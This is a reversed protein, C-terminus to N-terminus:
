PVVASAAAPEGQLLASLHAATSMLGVQESGMVLGVVPSDPDGMCPPVPQVRVDEGLAQAQDALLGLYREGYKLLACIRRAESVADKRQLDADLCYVPWRRDEFAIWGVGGVPPSQLELDARPALIRVDYQSLVLTRGDFSLSMYPPTPLGNVSAPAHVM